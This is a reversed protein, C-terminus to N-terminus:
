INNVNVITGRTESGRLKYLIEGDKPLPLDFAYTQLMLPRWYQTDVADYSVQAPDQRNVFFATQEVIITNNIM